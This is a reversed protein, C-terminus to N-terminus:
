HFKPAVGAVAGDRTVYLAFVQEDGACATCCLTALSLLMLARTTM